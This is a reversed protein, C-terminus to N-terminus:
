MFLAYAAAKLKEGSPDIYVNLAEMATAGLLPEPVNPNLVIDAGGFCENWYYEVTTKEYYGIQGNANQLKVKGSPRLGLEDWIVQPVISYLAGTDVLFKVEIKKDTKTNLVTVNARIMGM